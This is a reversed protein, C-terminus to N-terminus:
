EKGTTALRSHVFAKRRNQVYIMFLQVFLDFVHSHILMFNGKRHTCTSFREAIHIVNHWFFKKGDFTSHKSRNNQYVKANRLAQQGHCSHM